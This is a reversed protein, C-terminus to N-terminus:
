LAGLQRAEAVPDHFSCSGFSRALENRTASLQERSIRHGRWEVGHDDFTMTRSDGEELVETVTTEPFGVHVFASALFVNLYGFMPATPSGADYTLAYSARLPHHLGATAKFRVGQANCATIFRVVAAANPFAESVVGGTRIKARAGSRGIAHILSSPDLTAPIELFTEFAGSVTMAASEIETEGNVAIEVSDIVAHGLDSGSWHSCNFELLDKKVAALDGRAIASVRWPTARESRPLFNMAADAFEDIRDAPVVFRGLLDSDAGTLYESYNKVAESMSLGAPPFLGAYDIMESLFARLATM